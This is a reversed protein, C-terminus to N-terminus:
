TWMQKMLKRRKERRTHLFLGYKEQIDWITRSHVKLNEVTAPQAQQSLDKVKAEEWAKYTDFTPDMHAAQNM